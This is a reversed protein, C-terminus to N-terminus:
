GKQGTDTKISSEEWNGHNKNLMYSNVRSDNNKLVIKMQVLRKIARIVNERKLGTMRAMQSYSIRDEKKNWGFTKRIICDLVQRCEGPIRTKCLADWLENAIKVYGDELQPSRVPQDREQM